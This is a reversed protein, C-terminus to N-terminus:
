LILVLMYRWWAGAVGAILRLRGSSILLLHIGYRPRTREQWDRVNSFHSSVGNLRKDEVKLYVGHVPRFNM